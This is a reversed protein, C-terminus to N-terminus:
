SLDRIWMKIFNTKPRRRFRSFSVDFRVPLLKLAFESVIRKNRDSTNSCCSEQYGSDHPVVGTWSLSKLYIWYEKPHHSIKQFVEQWLNPFFPVKNSRPELVFTLPFYQHSPNFIWIMFFCEWYNLIMSLLYCTCRSGM